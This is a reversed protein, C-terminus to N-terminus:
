DDNTNCRDNSLKIVQYEYKNNELRKTGFTMPLIQKHERDKEEVHRAPM